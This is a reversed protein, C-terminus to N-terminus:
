GCNTACGSYVEYTQGTTCADASGGPCGCTGTGCRDTGCGDTCACGTYIEFTEGGGAIQTLQMRQLHHLTERSLTLKRSRKKM